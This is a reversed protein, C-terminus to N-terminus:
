CTLFAILWQTVQLFIEPNGYSMGSGGGSEFDLIYCTSRNVTVPTSKM